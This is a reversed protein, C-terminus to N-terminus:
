NKLALIGLNAAQDQGRGSERNKDYFRRRNDRETRASFYGLAFFIHPNASLFLLTSYRRSSECWARRGWVPM